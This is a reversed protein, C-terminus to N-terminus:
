RAEEEEKNYSLKINYRQPLRLALPSRFPYNPVEVVSSQVKNYSFKWRGSSSSPPDVAGAVTTLCLANHVQSM